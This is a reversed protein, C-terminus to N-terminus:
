EWFFKFGDNEQIAIVEEAQDISWGPSPNKLEVRFYEWYEPTPDNVIRVDIRAVTQGPRFIVVGAAPIFDANRLATSLELTFGLSALGTYEDLVPRM